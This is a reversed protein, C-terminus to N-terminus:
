ALPVLLLRGGYRGSELDEHAQAAHLLPYTRVQPPKLTGERLLAALADVATQLGSLDMNESTWGTLQLDQLLDWISLEADGGTLAGVSCLRGGPRLSAVSQRFIKGGVMEFCADVSVTAYNEWANAKLDWVEDAGIQRLFDAKAGSQTPAIVFAGKGKALAIAVGGVGGTGGHIIVREGSTIQLKHIGHFATVGALGLAAMAFPDTDRPIVALTSAPAVVFEQYGGKRTGHIGGMKQMMTIVPTGLPLTVDSARDKVLGVTELGPVYPFPQPAQITWKGSRIECDARNVGSALIQVLVEGPALDAIACEVAKLVSPPGYNKMQIQLPM